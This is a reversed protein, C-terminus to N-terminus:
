AQAKLPPNVPNLTAYISKAKGCKDLARVAKYFAEYDDFYGFVTNGWGEWIASAKGAEKLLARLEIVAGDYHLMDWTLMVPTVLEFEAVRNNTEVVPYWYVGDHLEPAGKITVPEEVGSLRALVVSDPPLKVGPLVVPWTQGSSDQWTHTTTADVDKALTTVADVEL